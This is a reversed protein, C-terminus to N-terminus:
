ARAKAIVARANAIVEDICAPGAVLEFLLTECAILLDDYCEARRKIEAVEAEAARRRACRVANAAQYAAEKAAHKEAVRVPDHTTCYHKGDREVKATLRCPVQRFGGGKPFVRVCCSAASM